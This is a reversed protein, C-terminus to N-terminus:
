RCEKYKANKLSYLNTILSYSLVRSCLKAFNQLFLLPRVAKCWPM